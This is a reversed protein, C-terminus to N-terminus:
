FPRNTPLRLMQCQAAYSDNLRRRAEEILIDYTWITVGMFRKKLLDGSHELGRGMIVLKETEGALFEFQGSANRMSDSRIFAIWEIIQQIAHTAESTLDGRKTLVRHTPNELEILIPPFGQERELIIDARRTKEGSFFAQETFFNKYSPLLLHKHENIFRHIRREVFAKRKIIAHFRALVSRVDQVYNPKRSDSFTTASNWFNLAHEKAKDIAFSEMFGEVGGWGFLMRGDYVPTALPNGDVNIKVDGVSVFQAGMADLPAQLAFPSPIFANYDSPKELAIFEVSDRQLSEDPSVRIAVGNGSSTYGIVIKRTQHVWSPLAALMGEKHLSLRDISVDLAEFHKLMLVEFESLTNQSIM